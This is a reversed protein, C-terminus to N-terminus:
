YSVNYTSRNRNKINIDEEAIHGPLGEVWTRLYRIASVKCFL